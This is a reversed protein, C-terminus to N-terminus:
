PQADQPTPAKTWGTPDMHVDVQHFPITIGETKFARWIALRLESRARCQGRSFGLWRPVLYNLHLIQVVCVVAM